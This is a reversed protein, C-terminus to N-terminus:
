EAINVVTRRTVMAALAQVDWNTLRVCGHSFSTGVEEAVPTGHIGYSPKTIGIWVTGLPNNPGAAVRFARTTKIEKFAYRPNYRWEPLRSVQRVRFAGPPTPKDDSGISAPYTAVLRGAKDYARVRRQPKNVEIRTVKIRSNPRGVRAVIIHTGAKDFDAQPNLAALLQQDMHFKEALMEQPTRYALRKFGVQQEVAEPLDPVFPGRLDAATIEYETLVPEESSALLADWTATDLVGRADLKNERQFAALAGRYNTNSGADIAGPSFGARDLLIQAKLAAASVGSTMSARWIAENVSELTLPVHNPPAVGDTSATPREPWNELAIREDFSVNDSTQPAPLADRAVSPQTEPAANPAPSPTIPTQAVPTQAIPTQAIAPRNLAVALLGISALGVVRWFGALAGAPALERMAM